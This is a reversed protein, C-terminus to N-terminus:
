EPYRAKIKKWSDSNGNRVYKLIEDDPSAAHINAITADTVANANSRTNFFEITFNHSIYLFSQYPYTYQTL